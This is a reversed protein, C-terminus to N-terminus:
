ALACVGLAGDLTANRIAITHLTPITGWTDPIAGLVGAGDGHLQLMGLAPPLAAPLPGAAFTNGGLVATPTLPTHTRAAQPQAVHLNLPM